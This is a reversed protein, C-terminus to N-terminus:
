AEKWENAEGITYFYEKPTYGAFEKFERIFHSQDTYGSNLAIQTLKLNPNGYYKLSEQFRIIRSYLKPSYGTFYKFNREFQRRSLFNSDALSGIDVQGNAKIIYKISELIVSQAAKAKLLKDELFSTIIGMRENTSKALMMKEELGNEQKGFLTKIDIMENKLETAPISLLLSMTYPYLYVGFLGFDQSTTLRKVKLSQADLGSTFITQSKNHSDLISFNGKYHFILEAAGDAMIRHRYPQIQSAEGEFVWFSRVYNSLSKSPLKKQYKM